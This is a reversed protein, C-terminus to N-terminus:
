PGPWEPLDLLRFRNKQFRLIGEKQMRGLEASMASRDVSLYDALQQRSFPIEFEPANARDAQARLYVLLKERTTRASLAEMKQNLGLNKQALIRLMNEILQSHFVCSSSCTHIIKRYDIFLVKCKDAAVVGVPLTKVEACAFTEGFMEGAGIGTLVSRNGFVDDRIVWVSGELVIGVREAPDGAIFVAEDKAYARVTGGLCDLLSKLEEQRINMFLPNNEIITFYQKM